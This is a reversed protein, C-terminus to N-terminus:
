SIKEKKKKDPHGYFPVGKLWLKLANWYIGTAVKVTMWPFRILTKRISAASISEGQLVMTADFVKKQQQWNELHILNKPRQPASFRWDYQMNMPHFPSIHFHKDLKFRYRDSRAETPTVGNLIRDGTSLLYQYREGWPTNTIEPMIALLTDQEDFAYYFTVPNIIFGLTRLNTLMCVRKIQDAEIGGDHAMKEIIAQKLPLSSDGFYDSRRFSCWGRRELTLLRSQQATLDLEDLDLYWMFIPYKLTHPKPSFRRHRVWGTMLQSHEPYQKAQHM